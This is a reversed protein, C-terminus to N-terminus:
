LSIFMKGRLSEARLIVNGIYSHISVIEKCLLGRGWIYEGLTGKEGSNTRGIIYYIIIYNVISGATYIYMCTVNFNCVHMCVDCHM